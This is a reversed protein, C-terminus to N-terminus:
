RLFIIKDKKYNGLIKDLTLVYQFNRKLVPFNNMSVFSVIKSFNEDINQFLKDYTKVNRRSNFLFILDSFCYITFNFEFM